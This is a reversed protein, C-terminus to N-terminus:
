SEFKLKNNSMISGNYNQAKRTRELGYMSGELGDLTRRVQADVQREAGLGSIRVAGVAVAGVPISSIGVNM